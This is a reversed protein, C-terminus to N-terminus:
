DQFIDDLKSEASNAFDDSLGEEAHSGKSLAAEFILNLEEATEKSYLRVMGITTRDDFIVVLITRENILSMHIHDRKGQHFLVSFEPEGVLRAIEKTSAFSGALLAALATTDLSHTFGQRTILHGDKDVLLACKAESGKLLKRLAGDIKATEEQYVILGDGAM